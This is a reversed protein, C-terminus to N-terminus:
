RRRRMLLGGLGCLSLMSMPEPVPVSSFSVTLGDFGSVAGAELTSAVIPDFSTLLDGLGTLGLSVVGVYEQGPVLVWQAQEQENVITLGNEDLQTVFVRQLVTPGLQSTNPAAPDYAGRERIQVLATGFITAVTDEEGGSYVVKYDRDVTVTALEPITGLSAFPIYARGGTSPAEGPNVITSQDGVINITSSADDYSYAFDGGPIPIPDFDSNAALSFYIDGDRVLDASVTAALALTVGAACLSSQLIRM